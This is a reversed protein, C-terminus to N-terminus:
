KVVEWVKEVVPKETRYKQLYNEVNQEFSLEIEVEGKMRAVYAEMRKKREYEQIKKDAYNSDIVGKRIPLCVPQVRNEEAFYLYVRPEYDIQDATMRMISGPNVLLIGGKQGSQCVFSQHNDGSLILDYDPFRKLLNLGSTAQQGPWLEKSEIVMQHVMAIQIDSKIEKPATLKAGYPFFHIQFEDFYDTQNGDVGYLQISGAAALVGLGSENWKDLQHNPLDHQGPIVIIKYGEFKNITWELLWTPWGNNLPKHGFDGAVLIPCDYQKSLALIFDIKKEMAAFYDDMRCVPVDPRIHWDATLIASARKIQRITRRSM